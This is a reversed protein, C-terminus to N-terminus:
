GHFSVVNSNEMGACYAAWAELLARRKKMATSRRYAQEVSNGIIHALCGEAVERSFNTEDGAWDRFSSRFGHPTANEIKMRRLLMSLAMNSLPKGDKQGFFVFESSGVDCLQMLIGIASNTLPVVHEKRAKMRNAPIIWMQDNLNIESWRAGLVEGSRSCTLIAFELAKAAMAEHEHLRLIFAPVDGYPMAPLHGQTLKKPKPLVNQLNGRWGAPNEGDRWGKVKAFNM